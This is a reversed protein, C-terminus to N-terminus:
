LLTLGLSAKLDTFGGIYRGNAKFIQPVTKLNAMSLLTKMLPNDNINIVECDLSSKDLLDVAKQCYSCEPQSLVLFKM